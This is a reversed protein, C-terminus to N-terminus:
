DYNKLHAYEKDVSDTNDKAKETAHGGGWVKWPSIGKNSTSMFEVWVVGVWEGKILEQPSSQM